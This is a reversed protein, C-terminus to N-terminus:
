PEDLRVLLRRLEALIAIRTANGGLAALAERLGLAHETARALWEATAPDLDSVGRLADTVRGIVEDLRQDADHTRQVADRLATSDDATSDLDRRLRGLERDLESLLAIHEDFADISRTLQARMDDAVALLGRGAEGLRSGDLGANLAALRSRELSERLRGLSSRVDPDRTALVQIQDSARGLAASQRAVAATCEQHAEAASRAMRRVEDLAAAFLAADFAGSRTAALLSEIASKPDREHTM